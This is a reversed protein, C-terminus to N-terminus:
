HPIVAGAYRSIDATLPYVMAADWDPAIGFERAPRFGFRPYYAPIGLLAVLAESRHQRATALGTIVLQNGIGQRQSSPLVSLPGLRLVPPADVGTLQLRSILCHGVLEGDREAVLSLEPVFDASNRIQEVMEVEPGVQGFALATLEAIKGADSTSEPRVRPARPQRSSEMHAHDCALDGLPM